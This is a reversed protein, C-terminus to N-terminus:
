GIKADRTGNRGLMRSGSPGWGNAERKLEGGRRPAWSGSSRGSTQQPERWHGGGLTVNFPRRVGSRM